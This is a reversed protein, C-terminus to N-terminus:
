GFINIMKLSTSVQAVGTIMQLVLGMYFIDHIAGLITYVYSGIM